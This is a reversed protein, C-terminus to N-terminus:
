IRKIHVIRQHFDPPFHGDESHGILFATNESFWSPQCNTQRTTPWASGHVEQQGQGCHLAVTPLLPLTSLRQTTESTNSPWAEM